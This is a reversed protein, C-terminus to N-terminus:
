SARITTFGEQVQHLIVPLTRSKNTKRDRNRKRCYQGNQGQKKKCFAILQTTLNTLGKLDETPLSANSLAGTILTKDFSSFQKFKKELKQLSVFSMIFLWFTGHLFFTWEHLIIRSCENHLLKKRKVSWGILVLM